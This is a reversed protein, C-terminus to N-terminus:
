LIGKLKNTIADAYKRAGKVNPHGTGAVPCILRAQSNLDPRVLRCTEQRPLFLQDDTVLNGLGGGSGTIRWLNTNNAAYCEDPSFEIKAFIGRAVTKAAAELDADSSRKWQDSLSTLRDLLWNPSIFNEPNAKQARKMQQKQEKASKRVIEQGKPFGLFAAILDPIVDPDTKQSIIPYYGTTVLWANPFREAMMGLLKKMEEFCYKKSLEVIKKEKTFPNVITPFGIDNIGGNLLVLNVDAPKIGASAYMSLAATMQTYITPTGIPVEGPLSPCPKNKPLINAGSHSLNLQHVARDPLLETAIREKVLSYFKNEEQIGQGWVVSDGLVLMYFPRSQTQTQPLLAFSRQALSTAPMSILALLGQLFRRRESSHM